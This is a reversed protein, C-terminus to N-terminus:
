QIKYTTTLDDLLQGDINYFYVTTTNNNIHLMAYTKERRMRPLFISGPNIFLVDDIQECGAIHSHGFCVIHAGVEKAKYYANMMTMKVNYLHGHTIFFRVGNREEVLDTPFRREYDCNGRVVLMGQLAEHDSPLESDGCHIVADVHQKHRSVITQLENTLGHSDSIVLVNM